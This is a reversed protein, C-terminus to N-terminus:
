PCQKAHEEVSSECVASRLEKKIYDSVAATMAEDDTSLFVAKLESDIGGPCYLSMVRFGLLRSLKAIIGIAINRWFNM